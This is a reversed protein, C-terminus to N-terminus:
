ASIDTRQPQRAHPPADSPSSAPRARAIAERASRTALDDEHGGSVIAGFMMGGMVGVFIATALTAPWAFLGTEDGAVLVHMVGAALLCVCLGIAAGLTKAGFRRHHEATPTM